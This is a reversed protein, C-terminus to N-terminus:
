LQIRYVKMGNLLYITKGDPSVTFDLLNDFQRSQFQSIIQGAQPSSASGAKDFIIIRNEAPEMVYLHALAPSTFIKRFNKIEPFIQPTIEEELEGRHYRSLSNNKNLIWISGDIAISKAETIKEEETLWMQPSGWSFSELHPYRIIEGSSKDLFYLHKGYLSLSEFNVDEYPKEIVTSYFGGPTLLTIQDPKSFFLISDDFPAALNFTRDTEILRGQAAKNVMFLNQSHPNFFYLDEKLPTIKLPVFNHNDFKFFLEPEEIIELKNLEFLSRSINYKLSALQSQFERPLNATAEALKNIEQWSEKLLLNAEESAEPRIETLTLLGEAKDLKERIEQLTEQSEELHSGQRLQTIFFGLFLLLILAPILILKKSRSLFGFSIRPLRVKPAALKPFKSPRAEEEYSPRLDPKKVPRKLKNALTQRIKYIFGSLPTLAEKLNFEKPYTKPDIVQKTSKQSLLRSPFSFPVQGAEEAETERASALILCLGSIKLANEKKKDFIEKLAKQNVQELGAIEQLLNEKKLFDTIEKTSIIIIDDQAMKGSVINGFVKLPWPLIEEFKLKQDIDTISNGRLLFIKLDGVKTFNMQYNKVSLAAFSLNGLWSVDGKKAIQELFENAEKLSEKLAKEPRVITSRYFEKQIVKALKDLFNINQPLTNKLCGALYLAGMRKEYVNEPEFCFSDFILNSRLKPNFHFEFVKM